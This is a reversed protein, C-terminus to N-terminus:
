ETHEPYFILTPREDNEYMWYGLFKRPAAKIKPMIWDLFKAVEDDYNKLDCTVSLGHGWSPYEYVVSHTYSQFYYSSSQLMHRWRPTKFLPHEPTEEYFPIQGTMYKLIRIDSENANSVDANFHFATYMGMM